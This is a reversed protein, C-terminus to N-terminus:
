QQFIKPSIILERCNYCRIRDRKISVGSGLMSRSNSNSRDNRGFNGSNSRERSRSRGRKYNDNRYNGRYGGIIRDEFIKIKIHEQMAESIEEGLTMGIAKDIGQDAEITRDMNYEEVLHYGEIEM